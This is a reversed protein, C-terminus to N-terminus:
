LTILKVRYLHIRNHLWNSIITLEQDGYRNSHVYTAATHCLLKLQPFNQYISLFKDFKEKSVKKLTNNWYFM